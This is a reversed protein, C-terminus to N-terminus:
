AAIRRLPFFLVELKGDALEGGNAFKQGGGYSQINLLCVGRTNKPMEIETLEGDEGAVLVTIYNNLVPPCKESNM